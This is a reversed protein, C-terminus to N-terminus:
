VLRLYNTNPGIKGKIIPDFGDPDAAWIRGDSSRILWHGELVELPRSPTAFVYRTPDSDPITGMPWLDSEALMDPLVSSVTEATVRFGEIVLNIFSDDDSVSM